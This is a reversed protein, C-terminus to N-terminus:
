SNKKEISKTASIEESGDGNIHILRYHANKSIKDFCNFCECSPKAPDVGLILAITKFNGGDVSKQIAFYNTSTSPDLSWNIEIKNNKQLINFSAYKINNQAKVTFAAGFLAIAILLLNKTKM